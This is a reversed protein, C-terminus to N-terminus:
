SRVMKKITPLQTRMAVIMAQQGEPTKLAEATAARQDDVAILRISQPSNNGKGGNLIHRPDGRTLVEEGKQLVSPVENPQLGSTVGGGVVGGTHYKPANAFMSAPLSRSHGGSNGAMGGGHNQGAVMSGAATGVSGLIGGMGSMSQLARLIMTKLIAMALERMLDAFFQLMTVGLNQMAEGWSETGNIVAALNDTVSKFATDVGQLMGQVLQVYFAQVAHQTNEVKVQMTDLSLMLQQFAAPDMAAQHAIAFQRLAEINEIVKVKSEDYLKNLQEVRETETIKGAAYQANILEEQATRQATTDKMRQQLREIEALAVQQSTAESVQTKMLDVRKQMAAAGPADFKAIKAIRNELDKYQDVATRVAAAEREGFSTTPDGFAQKKQVRGEAQELDTMASTVLNARKNAGGDGRKRHDAKFREEENKVAQDILANTKKLTEGGYKKAEELQAAYSERVLAVREKLDDKATRKQASLSQKALREREKDMKKNFEAERVKAADYGIDTTTREFKTAKTIDEQLNVALTKVNNLAASKGEYEAMLADFTQYQGKVLNAVYEFSVAIYKIMGDVINRVTESQKYLVTGIDIAILIAGLIPIARSLGRLAGAMLRAALTGAGMRAAWATLTGSLRVLLAQFERGGQIVDKLSSGFSIGYQIAKVFGINALAWKVLDLNEVLFAAGDAISSFVGGLQEALQQGQPGSLLATVKELLNRYADLFGSNSLALNFRFKANDLNNQTAVIGNKMQDAADQSDKALGRMISVVATSDLVGNQMQTQFEKTSLGLAKAGAEYAGPIQEGFQSKFEEAQISGKSLMQETALYVLNMQDSTKGYAVGISTINEFLEKSENQKMGSGYAAASFKGYAKAMSELNAGFSDAVKNIYEWEAAQKNRDKGVSVALAALTQQKVVQADIASNALNMAGYVGGYAATLSLLEGRIRQVLSLATKGGDGFARTGRGAGEAAAGNRRYAETLGNTADTVNRTTNLINQEAQALNRTDVGAARLQQQTARAAQSLQNFNESSQRLAGQAVRLDAAIQKTDAGTRTMAASLEIVRTRAQQYELRAAQVAPVQQRFADVLVGLAQVGQQANRLDRVTQAYNAIPKRSNEVSKAVREATENLGNLTRAAQASPDTLARIQESLPVVSASVLRTSAATSNFGNALALQQQALKRFEEQQKRINEALARDTATKQAESMRKLANTTETTAQVLQREINAMDRTDVGAARLQAQTDRAALSLQNYKEASAKLAAQQTKLQATIANTDAGTRTLSDALEVVRTRVNVFETRAAKAADVQRRFGDALGALSQIAQQSEKVEKVKQNFNELPTSSERAQRAAERVAAVLGQVTGRAAAAPDVLSRIKQSLTQAAAGTNRSSDGVTRWGLAIEKQERALKILAEQQQRLNDALARDAAAKEAAALDRLHKENDQIAADQKGLAQNVIDVQRSLRQTAGATNEVSIGYSGLKESIRALRDAQTQAYKDARERAKNLRNLAAEEKKSVADQQALKNQYVVQAEAADLAAQKATKMAKSQAEFAKVDAAQRILAKAVKELEQYSSELDRVSTEGKKASERQDEMARSLKDVTKTLTDITQKSHDQARIRLTIDRDTM